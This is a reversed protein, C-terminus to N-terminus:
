IAESERALSAMLFMSLEASDLGGVYEIQEEALLLLRDRERAAITNARAHALRNIARKVASPLSKSMIKGKDRERAYARVVAPPM